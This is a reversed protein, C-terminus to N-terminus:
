KIAECKGIPNPCEDLPTPVYYTRQMYGPEAHLHGVRQLPTNTPATGDKAADLIANAFEIAKDRSVLCWTNRWGINHPWPRIDEAKIAINGGSGRVELIAYDVLRHLEEETPIRFCEAAIEWRPDPTKRVKTPM